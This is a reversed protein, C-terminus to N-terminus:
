GVRAGIQALRELREQNLVMFHKVGDGVDLLLWFLRVFFALAVGRFFSSVCGSFFSTVSWSSGTVCAHM